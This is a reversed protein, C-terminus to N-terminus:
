RPELVVVPIVRKTRAQYAAYQGQNVEDARKWLRSREKGEAVRARVPIRARGM